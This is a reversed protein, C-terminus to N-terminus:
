IQGNLAIHIGTCIKSSSSPYDSVHSSIYLSRPIKDTLIKPMQFKDSMQYSLMNNSIGRDGGLVLYVSCIFPQHSDFIFTQNRNIYEWFHVSDNDELKWM